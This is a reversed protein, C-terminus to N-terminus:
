HPPQFRALRNVEFEFPKYVSPVVHTGVVRVRQGAVLLHRLMPLM